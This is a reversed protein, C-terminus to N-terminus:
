LNLFFNYYLKYPDILYILKPAVLEQLFRLNVSQVQSMM